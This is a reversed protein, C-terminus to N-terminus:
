QREEPLLQVMAHLRVATRVQVHESRWMVRRLTSAGLGSMASLEGLTYTRWLRLLLLRYPEADLMHPGTRGTGTRYYGIM